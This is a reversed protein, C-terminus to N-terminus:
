GGHGSVYEVQKKQQGDSNCLAILLSAGLVFIIFQFNSGSAEYFGAGILMAVATRLTTLGTKNRVKM